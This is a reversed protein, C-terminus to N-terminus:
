GLHTIHYSVTSMHCTGSSMITVYGHSAHVAAQHLLSSSITACGQGQVAHHKCRSIPTNGRFIGGAADKEVTVDCGADMVKVKVRNKALNGTCATAMGSTALQRIPLNYNIFELM